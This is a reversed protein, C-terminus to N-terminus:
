PYIIRIDGIRAERRSVKEAGPNIAIEVAREELWKAMVVQLGSVVFFAPYKDASFSSGTPAISVQTNFGVTAGCERGFVIISNSGDPSPISERVVTQCSRFHERPLSRRRHDRRRLGCAFPHDPSRSATTSNNGHDHGRCTAVFGLGLRTKWVLVSADSGGNKM